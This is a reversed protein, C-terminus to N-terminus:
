TFSFLKDKDYDKLFTLNCKNLYKFTQPPSFKPTEKKIESLSIPQKFKNVDKVEIGIAKTKGYYYEKFRKIDIGLDTSHKDWIKQPTLEIVNKIRCFGVLAMEPHTNYILILNGPLANPRSKRLEIKKEGSFILDSFEPKISILVIRDM